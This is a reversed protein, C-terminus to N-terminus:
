GCVRTSAAATTPAGELTFQVNNTARMGTADGGVSSYSNLERPPYPQKQRLRGGDAVRPSPSRLSRHQLTANRNALERRARRNCYAPTLLTECNAAATYRGNAGAHQFEM